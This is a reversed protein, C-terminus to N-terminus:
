RLSMLLLWMISGTSRRLGFLITKRVCNGTDTIDTSLSGPEDLLGANEQATTRRDLSTQEVIAKYSPLSVLWSHIAASAILFLTSLGFFIFASNEEPNTEAVVVEPAPSGRMSAAASLVQVGSVAVGVAAQGSMVAQMASPGFLSAIAVVATQLYSGAAAQAIANLLVFAFFIGPHPHMYTSMTLMFSLVALWSISLLVRRTMSSQKSTATAHALFLFNAATFTTSLYSSFTSKLPSGEMRSLFYPTATILANWPLLVACGLVFHIWRIRPDNEAAISNDVIVEAINLEEDELELDLSPRPRSLM